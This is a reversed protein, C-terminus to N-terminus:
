RSLVSPDRHCVAPDQYAAPDLQAVIVLVETEPPYVRLDDLPLQATEPPMKVQAEPSVAETKEITQRKVTRIM